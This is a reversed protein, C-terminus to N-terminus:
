SSGRLIPVKLRARGGEQKIRVHEYSRSRFVFRCSFLTVFSEIKERYIRLPNSLTSSSASSSSTCEYFPPLHNANLRSSNRLYFPLVHQQPLVNLNIHSSNLAADYQAL